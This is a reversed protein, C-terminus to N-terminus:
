ASASGATSAAIFEVADDVTVLDALAEDPIRVGFRDEAATAIEVMSLSDIDLDDRFSASGEVRQKPLRTTEFVIDALQDRIADRTIAM